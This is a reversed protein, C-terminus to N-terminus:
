TRGSSSRKLAITLSSCARRGSLGMSHRRPPRRFQFSRASHTCSRFRNRRDDRQELGVARSRCLDSDPCGRHEPNVEETLVPRLLRGRLRVGARRLAAQARRLQRHLHHLTRGHPPTASISLTRSRAPFPWSPTRKTLSCSPVTLDRSSALALLRGGRAAERHCRSRRALEAERDAAPRRPGSRAAPETRQRAAGGDPRATRRHDDTAMRYSWLPTLYIVGKRANQRM